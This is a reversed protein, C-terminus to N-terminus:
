IRMLKLLEKRLGLVKVMPSFLCLFTFYVSCQILISTVTYNKVVDNQEFGKLTYLMM